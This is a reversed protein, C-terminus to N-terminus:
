YIPPESGQQQGIVNCLKLHIHDLYSNPITDLPDITNLFGLTRPLTLASSLARPNRFVM